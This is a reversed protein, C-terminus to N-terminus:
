GLDILDPTDDSRGAPALGGEGRDLENRAPLRGLSVQAWALVM